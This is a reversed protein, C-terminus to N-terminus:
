VFRAAEEIEEQSIYQYMQINSAFTGHFLFPDQLVLGIASRLEEQSFSRIVQGDILILGSQLDYFRMFVYIISSKG